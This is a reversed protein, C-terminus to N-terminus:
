LLPLLSSPFIFTFFHLKSAQLQASISVVPPEQTKFTAYLM